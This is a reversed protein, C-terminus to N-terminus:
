KQQQQQQSDNWKYKINETKCLWISECRMKIKSSKKRMWKESTCLYFNSFPFIEQAHQSWTIKRGKSLDSRWVNWVSTSFFFCIIMRSCSHNIPIYKNYYSVYTKDQSKIWFSFFFFSRVFSQSVPQSILPKLVKLYFPKFIYCFSSVILHSLKWESKFRIFINKNLPCHSTM